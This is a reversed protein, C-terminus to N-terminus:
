LLGMTLIEIKSHNEENKLLFSTRSVREGSTREAKRKPKRYLVVYPDSQINGKTAKKAKAAEMYQKREVVSMSAM